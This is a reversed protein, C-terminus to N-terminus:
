NFNKGSICLDSSLKSFSVYNNHNVCFLLYMTYLLCTYNAYILGTKEPGTVYLEEIKIM